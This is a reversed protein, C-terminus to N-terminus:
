FSVGGKIVSKHKEVRSECIMYASRFWRKFLPMWIADSGIIGTLSSMLKPFHGEQGSADAYYVEENIGFISDFHEQARIVMASHRKCGISYVERLCEDLGIFLMNGFQIDYRRCLAYQREILSRDPLRGGPYAKVHLSAMLYAAYTGWYSYYVVKVSEERYEKNGWFLWGPLQKL